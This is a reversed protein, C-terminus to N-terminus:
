IGYRYQPKQKVGKLIELVEAIERSAEKDGQAKLRAHEGTLLDRDLLWPEERSISHIAAASHLREDQNDSRLREYYVRLVAPLSSAMTKIAANAPSEVYWDEDHVSLKLLLDFPVRDPASNALKMCISAAVSRVSFNPHSALESLQSHTILWPALDVCCELTMAAGWFRDEEDPCDKYSFLLDFVKNKGTADTESVIRMAARESKEWEALGIGAIFRDVEPLGAFVPPSGSPRDATAKRSRRRGGAKARAKSLMTAAVQSLVKEADAVRMARLPSGPSNVAQFERLDQIESFLCHSLIIPLIACSRRKAAHLLPPLENSAIFESALFDASILLVAVQAAAISSRIEERWNAGTAIRTDDWVDIKGDREIPRLHVKLRDLWRRDKHSYSIFINM